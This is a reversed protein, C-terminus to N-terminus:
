NLSYKNLLEHIKDKIDSLDVYGHKSLNDSLWIYYDKLYNYCDNLNYNKDIIINEKSEIDRIYGKYHDYFSDEWQGWLIQLIFSAKPYKKTNKCKNVDHCFGNIESIWHNLSQNNRLFFTMMLHLRLNKHISNLDLKIMDLGTTQEHYLELFELINVM